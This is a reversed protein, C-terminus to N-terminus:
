KADGITTLLFALRRAKAAESPQGSTSQSTDTSTTTDSSM